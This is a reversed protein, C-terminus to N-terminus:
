LSLQYRPVSFSNFNLGRAVLNCVNCTLIGGKVRTVYKKKVQRDLTYQWEQM